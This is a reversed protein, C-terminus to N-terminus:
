ASDVTYQLGGNFRYINLERILFERLIFMRRNHVRYKTGVIGLMILIFLLEKIIVKENVIFLSLVVIIARCNTRSKYCGLLELVTTRQQETYVVWFVTIVTHTSLQSASFILAKKNHVYYIRIIVILCSFCTKKNLLEQLILM